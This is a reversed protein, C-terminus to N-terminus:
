GSHCARLSPTCHPLAPQAAHARIDQPTASDHLPVSRLNNVLNYCASRGLVCDSAWRGTPWLKLFPLIMRMMLLMGFPVANPM